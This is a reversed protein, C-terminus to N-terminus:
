WTRSARGPRRRDTPGDPPDGRGVDVEDGPGAKVGGIDIIEAGEAVAREVARLAADQAFTAGQDFFSDPTRNVIAM